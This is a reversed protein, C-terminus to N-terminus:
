ERRYGSSYRPASLHSVSLDVAVFNLNVSGYDVRAPEVEVELSSGGIVERDHPIKVALANNISRESVESFDYSPLPSIIKPAFSFVEKLVEFVVRM